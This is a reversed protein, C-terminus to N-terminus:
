KVITRVRGKKNKNVMFEISSESLMSCKKTVKDFLMFKLKPLYYQDLSRISRQKFGHPLLTYLRFPGTSNYDESFNLAPDYLDLKKLRPKHSSGTSVSYLDYRDRDIYELYFSDQMLPRIYFSYLKRSNAVDNYEIPYVLVASLCEPDDILADYDVNDSDDYFSAELNRNIAFIGTKPTKSTNTNLTLSGPYGNSNVFVGTDSIMMRGLVAYLDTGSKIQSDYTSASTPLWFCAMVNDIPNSTIQTRLHSETRYFTCINRMLQYIGSVSVRQASAIHDKYKGKSKLCGFILNKGYIRSIPNISRDIDLYISMWAPEIFSGSTNNVNYM